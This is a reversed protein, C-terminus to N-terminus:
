LLIQLGLCGLGLEERVSDQARELREGFLCQVLQPSAQLYTPALQRALTPYWLLLMSASSNILQAVLKFFCMKHKAFTQQGLGGHHFKESMCAFNKIQGNFKEHRALARSKFERVEETDQTNPLAILDSEGRYGKDGVGLKGAM